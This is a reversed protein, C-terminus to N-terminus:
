GTGLSAASVEIKQDKHWKCHLEFQEICNEQEVHQWINSNGAVEVGRHLTCHFSGTKNGECV